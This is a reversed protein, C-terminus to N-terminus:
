SSKLVNFKNKRCVVILLLLGCQSHTVIMVDFYDKTAVKCARGTKFGDSFIAPFLILRPGQKVGQRQWLNVQHGKAFYM